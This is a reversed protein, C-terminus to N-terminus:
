VKEFRGEYEQMETKGYAPMEVAKGSCNPHITVYPKVLETDQQIQTQWKTERKTRFM